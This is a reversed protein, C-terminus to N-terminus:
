DNQECVENIFESLRYNIQPNERMQRYFEMAIDPMDRNEICYECQNRMSEVKRNGSAMQNQTWLWLELIDVAKLWKMEESSLIDEYCVGLNRMVTKEAEEYKEAVEPYSWKATAPLDGLWREGTDHWLVAKILNLSPNDNLVFLLSLCNYCHNGINYGSDIGGGMTHCRLIEGAERFAKAMVIESNGNIM